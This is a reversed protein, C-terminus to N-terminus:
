NWFALESARVLCAFSEHVKIFLVLRCNPHVAGQLTAQGLQGQRPEGRMEGQGPDWNASHGDWNECCHGRSGASDKCLGRLTEPAAGCLGRGLGLM